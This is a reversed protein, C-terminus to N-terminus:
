RKKRRRDLYVGNERERDRYIYVHRVMSIKRKPNTQV